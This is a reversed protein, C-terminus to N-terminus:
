HSDFQDPDPSRLFIESECSNLFLDLFVTCACLCSYTLGLVTLQEVGTSSPASYSLSTTM